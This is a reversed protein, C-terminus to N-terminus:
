VIEVFNNAQEMQEKYTNYATCNNKLVNGNKNFMFMTCYAFLMNNFERVNVEITAKGTSTM